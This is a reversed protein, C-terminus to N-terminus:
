QAEEGASGEPWLSAPKQCSDSDTDSEAPGRVQTESVESPGSLAIYLGRSVKDIQGSDVLRKLYQYANDGFQEAVDRARVGEPRQRIFALIGASTGGLHMSDVRKRATEAAAGLNDGDLQWARGETFTVAYEDEPVDRGTIKLSGDPSQRRRALVVITDAAGALGHTGSVSDVFDDANAKRDHHLVVISLGPVADAQAKLASGVRYDRQYASEGQATPPMVKGLTDVVILATDPHRRMWATITTLVAGPLIRTQYSFLEPIEQGEGLLARCRDQMRRDSDELALYLVRRPQGIKIKGLALGGSAIALLLDLILWSKGVKPPGIELTLGEPILGPISWRLPPFSQQHLWAGDRVGALLEADIDSDSTDSGDSTAQRGQDAIGPTGPVPLPGSDSTDSGLVVPRFEDLGHGAALHDHADKGTAAEAICFSHIGVRNLSDRVQVAHKRGPDDKDAVIVVQRVGRFHRAFEPRWKGAGGPNCTAIGGAAEIAHVDKEGEVIYIVPKDAVKAKAAERLRPLRYPVRTVDKLNWAWGSPQSPDPRRQSFNKDASRLVQFLLKGHDDTYDYVAISRRKGPMWEGAPEEDRRSSVDAMSLGIADLVAPTECGAHCRLLVPHDTGRAISLSAKGDEHAPCRAMWYGGHQRVGDLKGLVLDLVDDDTM